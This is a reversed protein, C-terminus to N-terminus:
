LNLKVGTGSSTVRKFRDDISQVAKLIVDNSNACRFTNAEIRKVDAMILALNNAVPSPNNKLEILLQRMASVDQRISNFYGTLLDAQKETMGQIGKKLGENSSSDELNVGAEKAAENLYDWAEESKSVVDKLGNLQKVLGSFDSKSMEGDGLVGGKGDEGFLYTRLNNMAPEIYQLQLINKIVNKMINAVTDDFAAAADQGSAFANTLSDAIQGAWDKIKISFQEGALDEYFYRIQDDLQKIQNQYDIIASQDPDKKDREAAMQRSIESRQKELNKLQQKAQSETVAGLQRDLYRALDEYAGQLRQVELRSKEIVKNLKNDHHKAISSIINPVFSLAGTIMQIPNGSTLDEALKGFEGILESALGLADALDANGLNAFMNGWADLVETAMAAAEAVGQIAKKLANQKEANIEAQKEQHKQIIVNKEIPTNADSLSRTFEENEKASESVAKKYDQVGERIRLFPNNKIRINELEKVKKILSTLDAETLKISKGDIMATYGTTQGDKTLPNAQASSIIDKTKSILLDLMNTGYDSIDGFLKQYFSTLKLSESELRRIEEDYKNKAVKIARDIEKSNEDTRLANLSAIDENFEKEITERQAAFDKYKDLMKQLVDNNDKEMQQFALSYKDNIINQDEESLNAFSIVTPKFGNKKNPNAKEWEEKEAKQIKLILDREYKQVEAIRKDYDLRIQALTKESGDEMLNIRAQQVELEGKITADKLDNYAKQIDDLQKQTNANIKKDNYIELNAEAENKLKIAYKYSDIVSQPIGDTIGKNLKKKYNSAIKDLYSNAISLQTQWYEKNQTIAKNADDKNIFPTFYQKVKNIDKGAKNISKIYDELSDYFTNGLSKGGSMKKAMLGLEAWTKEWAIGENKANETLRVIDDIITNTLKPNRTANLFSNRLNALAEAQTEVSEDVIKNIATSQAKLASQERLSTNIRNYALNIEDLTSKESLLNPLYKGYQKNIDNIANYRGVTGINANKLSNFLDDLAIKDKVNQETLNKTMEILKELEKGGKMLGQVWAQIERSYATLLTVGLILATQWSLLASIAQKWVPTAAEGAKKLNNYERNAQAIADALYPLNNSLSIIFTSLSIGLNPLERAVMGIQANLMNYQTGSTKALQSNRAIQSNLSVLKQDADNINALLIKGINSEREKSSMRDYAVRMESLALELRRIAGEQLETQNISLSIAKTREKISSRLQFERETLKARAENAVDLTIKEQKLESNIKKRESSIKKLEDKEKVLALVNSNRSGLTDEIAKHIKEQLEIENQLQDLNNSTSASKIYEESLKKQAMGIKEIHEQQEKLKKNIEDQSQKVADGMSMSNSVEKLADELELALKKDNKLINELDDKGTIVYFLDGLDAM